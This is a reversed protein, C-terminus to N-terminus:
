RSRVKAGSHRRGADLSVPAVRSRFVTALLLPAPPARVWSPRTCTGGPAARTSLAVAAAEVRQALLLLLVRGWAIESPCAGSVATQVVRGPLGAVYAM